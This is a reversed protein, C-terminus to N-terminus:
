AVRLDAIADSRNHLASEIPRRRMVSVSQAFTRPLRIQRGGHGFGRCYIRHPRLGFFNCAVGLPFYYRVNGGCRSAGPLLLRYM